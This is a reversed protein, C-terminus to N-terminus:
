QPIYQVEAIIVQFNLFRHCHRPTKCLVIPLEERPVIVSKANIRYIIVLEDNLLLSRFANNVRKMITYIM